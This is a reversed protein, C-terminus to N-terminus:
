TRKAGIHAEYISGARDRIIRNTEKDKLTRLLGLIEADVDKEILELAKYRVGINTDNKLRDVLAGKIERNGVIKSLVTMAKMRIVPDKDRAMISLLVTRIEPDRYYPQVIDISKSKISYDEEENKLAGLLLSKIQPSEVQGQVEMPQSRYDLKILVAGGGSGEGAGAPIFDLYDIRALRADLNVPIGRPIAELADPSRHRSLYLAAGLGAIVIMILSILGSRLLHTRRPRALVTRTAAAPMEPPVPSSAPDKMGAWAASTRRHAPSSGRATVAAGRVANEEGSVQEPPIASARAAKPPAGRRRRTRMWEDIEDKDFLVRKANVRHHPIKGTSVLNYITRSSLETYRAIKGVDM